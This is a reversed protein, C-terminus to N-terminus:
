CIVLTTCNNSDAMDVRQNDAPTYVWKGEPHSFCKFFQNQYLVKTRLIKSLKLFDAKRVVLENGTRQHKQFLQFWHIDSESKKRFFHFWCNKSESFRLSSSTIEFDFLQVVICIVQV